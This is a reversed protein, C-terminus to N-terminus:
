NWWKQTEEEGRLQKTESKKILYENRRGLPEAQTHTDRMELLTILNEEKKKEERGQENTFRVTENDVEKKVSGPPRASAFARLM